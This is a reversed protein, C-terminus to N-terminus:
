NTQSFNLFKERIAAVSITEVTEHKKDNKIGIQESIQSNPPSTEAPLKEPKLVLNTQKTINFSKTRRINSLITKPDTIPNKNNLIENLQKITDQRHPTSNVNQESIEKTQKKSRFSSNTLPPLPPQPIDSTSTNVKYLVDVKKRLEQVTENLEHVQEALDKKKINNNSDKPFTTISSIPNTM